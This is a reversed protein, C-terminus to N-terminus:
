SILEVDSSIDAENMQVGDHWALFGANLNDAIYYLMDNYESFEKTETKGNEWTLKVKYM